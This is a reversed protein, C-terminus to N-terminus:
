VVTFNNSVVTFNNPSTTPSNIAVIEIIKDIANPDGELWEWLENAQDVELEALYTKLFEPM